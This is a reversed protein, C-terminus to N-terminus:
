FLGNRAFADIFNNTEIHLDISELVKINKAEAQPTVKGNFRNESLTALLEVKTPQEVPVDDRIGFGICTFKEAYLKIGDKGMLHKYKGYNPLINVDKIKFLAPPNGEGSPQFMKEIELAEELEDESIEVDAELQTVDPKFDKLNNQLAIKLDNFNSTKITFGAAGAHGGYKVFLEPHLDLLQKLNLSEPSRGSGKLEETGANTFVLAPGGYAEELKGAIIGVIGECVDPINVIVPFKGEFEPVRSLADDVLSKREENLEILKKALNEALDKDPALVMKLSLVAGDDILRGPANLCPGIKFGIDSSSIEGELNLFKMLAKLGLTTYGASLYKLGNRVIVFNEERLPMVDAITAIAALSLLSKARNSILVEALKYALGAGCYDNFDDGYVHPDVIVDAAPLKIEGNEKVPEHHDTVIVTCGISKAYDVADLAAIGNDVTIVLTKEPEKIEDLMTKKFGFGESFRHPLRVMVKEFALCKLVQFLIASSMIGDVDYDGIILIPLKKSHSSIVAAAKDLNKVEYDGNYSKRFWNNIEETSGVKLNKLHLNEIQKKLMSM